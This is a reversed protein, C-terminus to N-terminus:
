IGVILFETRIIVIAITIIPNSLKDNMKREPFIGM